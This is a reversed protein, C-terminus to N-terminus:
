WIVDHGRNPLAKMEGLIHSVQPVPAPSSLYPHLAFSPRPGLRATPSHSRPPLCGCHLVHPLGKYSLPGAGFASARLSHQGIQYSCAARLWKFKM